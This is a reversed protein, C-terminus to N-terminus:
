IVLYVKVSIANKLVTIAAERQNVETDSADRCLHGMGLRDVEEGAATSFRRVGEPQESHAERGSGVGSDACCSAGEYAARGDEAAFRSVWASHTRAAGHFDFEWM